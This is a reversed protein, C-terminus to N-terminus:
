AAEDPAAMEIVAPVGYREIMWAYQEKNVRWVSPLPVLDMQRSIQIAHMKADFMSKAMFAYGYLIIGGGNPTDLLEAYYRNM